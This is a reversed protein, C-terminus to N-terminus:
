YSCNSVGFATDNANDAPEVNFACRLWKWYTGGDQATPTASTVKIGEIQVYNRSTTYQMWLFGSTFVAGGDNEARIITYSGASGSPPMHANDLYNTSGSYTGDRIILTDGGSMAAVASQLNTYTEGAGMYLTAAKSNIPSLVLVIIALGTALKDINM